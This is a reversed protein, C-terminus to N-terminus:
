RARKGDASTGRRLPGSTRARRNGSRPRSVHAAADRVGTILLGLGYDFSAPSGGRHRKTDIMVSGLLYNFLASITDVRQPEEFGAPELLDLLRQRIQMAWPGTLEHTVLLEAIGPRRVLIAHIQHLAAHLTTEWEGDSAFGSTSVELTRAVMAELLADKSEVYGYLTMPSVALSEAVRRISVAPLGDDDLIRLAADVVDEHSLKAPRGRRPTTSM